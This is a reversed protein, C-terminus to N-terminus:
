HPRLWMPWKDPNMSLIQFSDWCAHAKLPMHCLVAAHPPALLPACLWATQLLTFSGCCYCKMTFTVTWVRPLSNVIVTFRHISGVVTTMEEFRLFSLGMSSSLRPDWGNPGKFQLWLQSHAAMHTSTVLGRDGAPATLARLQREASRDEEWSEHPCNHFSHEYHWMARDSSTHLGTSALYKTVTGSERSSVFCKSFQSM